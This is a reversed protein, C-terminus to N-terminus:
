RCDSYNSYKDIINYINTFEKPTDTSHIVHDHSVGKDLPFIKKDLESFKPNLLNRVYRKVLEIQKCKRTGRDIFFDSKEIRVILIVSNIKDNKSNKLIFKNKSLIFNKNEAPYLDLIFETFRNGPLQINIKQDIQIKNKKIIECISDLNHIGHEYIVFYYNYENTINLYKIPIYKNIINKFVMISLRHVGDTIIYKNLKNNFIVNIPTMKELCFENQLLKFNILSHEKQNTINILYNYTDYNNNMLANYHISDKINFCYHPEDYIYNDVLNLYEKLKNDKLWHKCLIDDILISM